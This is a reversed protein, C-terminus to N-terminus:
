CEHINSNLNILKLNIMVIDAIILNRKESMNVMNQKVLM